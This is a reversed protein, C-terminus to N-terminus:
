RCVGAACEPGVVASGVWLALLALAIGVLLIRDERWVRRVPGVM